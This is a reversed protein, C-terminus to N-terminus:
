DRNAQNSVSLMAPTTPPMMGIPKQDRDGGVVEEVDIAQDTRRSGRQERPARADVSASTGRRQRTRPRRRGPYRSSATKRETSSAGQDNREIAPQTPSRDSNGSCTRRFPTSHQQALRASAHAPQQLRHRPHSRNRASRLASDPGPPERPRPAPVPRGTAARHLCGEDAEPACPGRADGAEAPPEGRRRRAPGKEGWAAARGTRRPLCSAAKTASLECCSRRAVGRAIEREQAGDAPGARLELQVCGIDGALRVGGSRTVAAGGLEAKARTLEGGCGRDAGAGGREAEEGVRESRTRRRPRSSTCRM